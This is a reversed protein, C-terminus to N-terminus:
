FKFFFIQSLFVKERSVAWFLINVSITSYVPYRKFCVLRGFKGELCVGPVVMLEHEVEV